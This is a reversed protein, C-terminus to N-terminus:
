VALTADWPKPLSTRTSANLLTIDRERSCVSLNVVPERTVLSVFSMVERCSRTCDMRRINTRAGIKMMPPRTM